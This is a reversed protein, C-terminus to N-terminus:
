ATVPICFCCWALLLMQVLNIAVSSGHLRKFLAKATTDGALERDRARNIAPVLLQRSVVFLALVVLLLWAEKLQLAFAAVAAILSTVMGFLYYLPFVKRLFTGANDPPLVRFVTPAIVSSFFLMAGLTFSCFVLTLAQM